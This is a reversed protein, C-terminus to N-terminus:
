QAWHCIFGKITPQPSPLLPPLPLDCNEWAAAAVRAYAGHQGQLSSLASSHKPRTRAGPVGPYLPEGPRAAQGSHQRDGSCTGCCPASSVSRAALAWRDQQDESLQLSLDWFDFCTTGPPLGVIIKVARIRQHGFPWVRSLSEPLSHPLLLCPSCPEPAQPSGAQGTRVHDPGQLGSGAFPHPPVPHGPHIGM